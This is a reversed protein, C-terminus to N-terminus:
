AAAKAILAEARANFHARGFRAHVSSRLDDPLPRKKALAASIAEALQEPRCLQGLEGDGLADSAGAASLGLAPTGCAMAELYVIGFGEGSSPMVFLDASSYLAPLREAPVHGTFILRDSVGASRAIDELRARDAGEGAIVYQVDHGSQGLTALSHIVRDHGKYREEPALRGVSLLTTKSAFGFSARASQRDAPAFREDVTNPLVAVRTPDLRSWQLVKARTYRSVCLMLDAGEVARLLSSRPREWAEIGHLQVVLRAGTIRAIAAALPAMYFHGCLVVRPKAKVAQQLAGAAYSIRGASPAIQSIGRPLQHVTDPAARPVALIDWGGALAALLDRNYQAIGGRGGFADTVLALVLERSM